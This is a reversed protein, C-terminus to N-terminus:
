EFLCSVNMMMMAMIFMMNMMMSMMVVALLQHYQGNCAIKFPKKVRKEKKFKLKGACHEDDLDVVDDDGVNGDDVDEDHNDNFEGKKTCVEVKKNELDFGTVEGTAVM